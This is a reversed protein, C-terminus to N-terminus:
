DTPTGIENLRQRYFYIPANYFRDTKAFKEEYILEKRLDQHYFTKRPFWSEKYKESAAAKLIFRDLLAMRRESVMPLGSIELLKRYSLKNGFIIQLATRQLHDIKKNQEGSLMSHYVVSGYDIVSLLFVKYLAVLDQAPVDAKKLNRLIWLRKRFKRYMGLLYAEVTPRNGFLFGLQKLSDQSVIKQGGPTRIYSRMENQTHGSICLIQTKQDNVLM